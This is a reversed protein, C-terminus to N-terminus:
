RSRFARTTAFVSGGVALVAMGTVVSEWPLSAALVLCGLVGLV